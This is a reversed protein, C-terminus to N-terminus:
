IPGRGMWHVVPWPAQPSAVELARGLSDVIRGLDTSPKLHRVVIIGVVPMHLAKAVVPVYLRTLQEDAEAINSLKCEIVAIRDGLKLIVDTQCWAEGNADIYRFWQGHIGGTAWAVSREYRVGYARAGKLRKPRPIFSPRLCKSAHTLGAVAAM